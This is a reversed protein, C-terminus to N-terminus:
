CCCCPGFCCCCVATPVTAPYCCPLLCTAYAVPCGCPLLLSLSLLLTAVPAAVPYCCPCCRLLLLPLLLAAPLYSCCPCGSLLLLPLLLAAAPCCPLLLTADPCSCSPLLPGCPLLLPFCLRCCIFCCPPLLLTPAPCCCPCCCFPCCCFSCFLSLLLAADPCPLLLPLLLFSMMPMVAVAVMDRRGNNIWSTEIISLFFTRRLRTPQRQWSKGIILLDCCEANKRAQTLNRPQRFTTSPLHAISPLYHFSDLQPPFRRVRSELLKEFTLRTIKVTSTIRSLSLFQYSHRERVVKM